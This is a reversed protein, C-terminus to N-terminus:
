TRDNNGVGANGHTGRYERTERRAIVVRYVGVRLGVHAGHTTDTRDTADSFVASRIGISPRIQSEAHGTGHALDERLWRWPPNCPFWHREPVLAPRRDLV